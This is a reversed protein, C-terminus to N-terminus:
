EAFDVSASCVYMRRSALLYGVSICLYPGWCILAFINVASWSLWFSTPFVGLARWPCNGTIIHTVIWIITITTIVVNTITTIWAILANKLQFFHWVYFLVYLIIGNTYIDFILVVLKQHQLDPYLNSKSHTVLSSTANSTMNQKKIQTCTLHILESHLRHNTHKETLKIYKLLFNVLHM